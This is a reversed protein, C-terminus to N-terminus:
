GQEGHAEVTKKGVQGAVVTLMNAQQQHLAAHPDIAFHRGVRQRFYTLEAADFHILLQQLCPAWCAVQHEVFRGSADAGRLVGLM